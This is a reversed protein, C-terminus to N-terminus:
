EQEDGPLKTLGLSAGTLALAARTDNLIKDFITPDPVEVPLEMVFHNLVESRTNLLQDYDMDPHERREAELHLDLFEHLKDATDATLHAAAGGIYHKTGVPLLHVILVEGPEVRRSAVQDEIAYTADSLLERVHVEKGKLTDSIVYPRLHVNTWGRLVQAEQENLPFDEVGEALQEILTRGDDLPQDFAFWTLFREAGRGELEDLDGMQDVTYKGNWFRHFATPIADVHQQAREVIRPLLTDGAQRLKRTEAQAAEDSALHCQKYKKGSGCWCPDNRGIKSM